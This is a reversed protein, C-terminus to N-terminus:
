LTNCRIVTHRLTNYHTATHQLTNCLTATHQLTNTSSLGKFQLTEYKWRFTVDHVFSDRWVCVLWTVCLHTVDCVFSDHWVCILWTVCLYTVDGLDLQSAAKKEEESENRKRPPVFFLLFGTHQLLTNCCHTAATHQLINCHTATHQPANCHTLTHQLTDKVGWAWKRKLALFFFFSSTVGYSLSRLVKYM